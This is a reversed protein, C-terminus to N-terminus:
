ATRRFAAWSFDQIKAAPTQHSEHESALLTWAPGLFDVLDEVGYRQVPLGSCSLPGELSFVGLVAVSGATTAAELVARYRDRDGAATFFHLVARDHWAGYAREPRWGLLDHILWHVGDAAQGLREQATRIGLASVDLVTLDTWGLELLDDVLVSAGGGVDVLSDDPGLGARRLMRVSTTAHEQYWSRTSDGRAYTGDWHRALDASSLPVSAGPGASSRARVTEAM